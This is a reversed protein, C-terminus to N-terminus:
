TLLHLLGMLPLTNLRLLLVLYVSVLLTLDPDGTTIGVTPATDTFALQGLLGSM